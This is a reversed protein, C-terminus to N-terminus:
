VFAYWWVGACIAVMALVMLWLGSAVYVRLLEGYVLLRLEEGLLIMAPIVCAWAQGAIGYSSGLWWIAGFMVVLGIGFTTFADRYPRVSKAIVLPIVWSCVSLPVGSVALAGTSEEAGSFHPFIWTLADRCVIIGAIAGVSASLILMILERPLKSGNKFHRPYYVQAVNSVLLIGILVINAGFAFEGAGHPSILLWSFWRNAILYLLWLAGFIFLPLSSVLLPLSSRVHSVSLLRAFPLNLVIAVMAYWGAMALLCGSVGGLLLGTLRPLSLGGQILMSSVIFAPINSSARSIAVPGVAIMFAVGALGAVATLPGTFLSVILVAIAVCAGITLRVATLMAFDIQGSSSCLRDTLRQLGLDFDGIYQFLSTLLSFTVFSVPDLVMPAAITASAGAIMTIPACITYTIPKHLCKAIIGPRRVSLSLEMAPDYEDNM